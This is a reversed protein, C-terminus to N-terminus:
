KQNIQSPFRGKNKHIQITCNECNIMIFFDHYYMCQVDVVVSEGESTGVTNSATCVYTGSRKRQINPITYAPGDHLDVNLNDQKNWRWTISTNPNADTVTCILTATREEQIRYPSPLSCRVEPKDTCIKNLSLFPYLM